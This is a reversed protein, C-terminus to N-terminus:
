RYQVALFIQNIYEWFHFQVAENEFNGCEHIQSRNIDTWRNQQLLTMVTVEAIVLRSRRTTPDKMVMVEMIEAIV